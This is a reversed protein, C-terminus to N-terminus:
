LQLFEIGFAPHPGGPLTLARESALEIRLPGEARDAQEKVVIAMPSGPWRVRLDGGEDTLTGGLVEGWQRRASGLDHASLVLARWEVPEPAVGEAEPFRWGAEITYDLSPESQALQVVIGHAQRPHLFAEKWGPNSADYGVVDLGASRVGELTADLDPVKFTVHHVSPGHRELFRHLFGGPPGMPAIVEVRAGGEFAWQWFGFGGGPGGELPRGGLEGMLFPAVSTVDPAGFAVHDLEIRAAGM